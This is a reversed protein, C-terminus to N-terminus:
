MTGGSRVTLGCMLNKDPSATALAGSGGYCVIPQPLQSLKLKCGTMVGALRTQLMTRKNRVKAGTTRPVVPPGKVGRGGTLEVPPGQWISDLDTGLSTAVYAPAPRAPSRSFSYAFRSVRTYRIKGYPVTYPAALMGFFSITNLFLHDFLLGRHSHYLPPIFQPTM